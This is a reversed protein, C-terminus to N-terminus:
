SEGLHYLTLAAIPEKVVNGIHMGHLEAVSRLFPAFYWAISGCAHVPLATHKPYRVLYREFLENFADTILQAIFPEKAHDRLFPAFSALYKNPRDGSYVNKLVTDRNLKYAADFAQALSHPVRENLWAAMWRRGLDAGSGEDGLIYGASAVNQVISAGDYYCSNAGTGLILALGESRNCLARAAGLLDHEIHLKANPFYESLVRRLRAIPEAAGLGSGYFHLESVAEAPLLGAPGDAIAKALGDDSVFYPNLGQTQLQQIAGNPDIFRWHTKTSGSDALLIM